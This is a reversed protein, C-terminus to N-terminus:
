DFLFAQKAHTYKGRRRLTRVGFTSGHLKNEWISNGNVPPLNHGDQSRLAFIGEEMQDLVSTCTVKLRRNV